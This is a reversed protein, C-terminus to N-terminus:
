GSRREDNSEGRKELLVSTRRTLCYHRGVIYALLDIVTSKGNGGTGLFFNLADESTCGTLSYGFLRLLFDRRDLDGSMVALLFADFAPTLMGWDPFTMCKRSIYDGPQMDRIKKTELDIIASIGTHGRDLGLLMPNSDFVDPELSLLGLEKTLDDRFKTTFLDNRYDKKGEKPPPFDHFIANCFKSIERRLISQSEVPKALDGDKVWRNSPTCGMYIGRAHIAVCRDKPFRSAIQSPFLLPMGVTDVAIIGEELVQEDEEFMEEIEALGRSPEPVPTAEVKKAAKKKKKIKGV